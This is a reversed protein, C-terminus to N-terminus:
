QKSVHEIVSELPVSVQEGSEMNKVSATKAKLEDEGIIITFRVSQANAFKMHKAISRDGLATDCSIKNRRLEAALKLAVTRAEQGLPIVYATIGEVPIEVGTNKLAMMVRDFGIAFGTSNIKEAGFLEALEYAGGGCVQKEAGLSPVDIEFVMGTYYDLGRAIGLDITYEEAGLSKVLALTTKLEELASEARENDKVLNDIMKGLESSKEMEIVARINGTEGGAEGELLDFLTDLEGKDILRMCQSQREGSIGMAELLGRLIGLHGIRLTFETLGANRLSAIAMAIIDADSGQVDGGMIEAGFQWFERFRGSQPREYRFCNGFYFVKIPKPLHRLEGAYFRMTPATLEPRLSLERGGKDTFIYMENKVDEGSRETFLEAHEFTPTAIERYGFTAATKRLVGEVYRRQAM